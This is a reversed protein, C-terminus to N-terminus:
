NGKEYAYLENVERLVVFANENRVDVDEAIDEIGM